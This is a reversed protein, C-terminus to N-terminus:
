KNDVKNAFGPKFSDFMQKAILLDKEKVDKAYRLQVYHSQGSNGIKGFYEKGIVHLGNKEYEYGYAIDSVKYLKIDKIDKFSDHKEREMLRKIDIKKDVTRFLNGYFIVCKDSIDERYQSASDKDRKQKIEPMKITDPYDIQFHRLEDKYTSFKIKKEHKSDEHKEVEEKAVEKVEERAENNVFQTANEAVDKEAHNTYYEMLQVFVILLSLFAITFTVGFMRKKIRASINPRIVNVTRGIFCGCNTCIEDYNSIDAGCKMCLKRM